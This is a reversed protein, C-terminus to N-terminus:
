DNTSKGLRVGAGGGNEAIFQVGGAELARRIAEMNARMM